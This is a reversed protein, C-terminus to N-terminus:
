LRYRRMAQPVGEGSMQDARASLYDGNAIEETMSLDAARLDIQVDRRLIQTRCRISM